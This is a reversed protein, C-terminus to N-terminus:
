EVLRLFRLTCDLKSVFENHLTDKTSRNKPVNDLDTQVSSLLRSIASNLGCNKMNVWAM